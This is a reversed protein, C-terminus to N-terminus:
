NFLVSMPVKFGLIAQSEYTEEIGIKQSLIFADGQLLYQELIKKEPDILLYEEVGYAAYDEMKQGRDNRATSKSLVEVALNPVPFLLQDDTFGVTRDNAFFVIDPEYFHPGVRIMAKENYLEGLQNSEVFDIMKGALRTCVKLHGRSVPSQMVIEGNIFEAKVDENVMNLFQARATDYAREAANLHQMATKFDTKRILRQALKDYDM